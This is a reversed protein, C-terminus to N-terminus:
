ASPNPTLSADVYASITRWLTVVITSPRLYGPAQSRIVFTAGQNRFVIIDRLAVRINSMHFSARALLPGYLSHEPLVLIRKGCRLDPTERNLFNRTKSNGRDITRELSEGFIAPDDRYLDRPLHRTILAGIFAVV